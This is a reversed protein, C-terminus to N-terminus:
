ELELDDEIEDLVTLVDMNDFFDDSNYSVPDM